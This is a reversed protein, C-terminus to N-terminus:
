RTAADILALAEPAAWDADGQLRAVENGEPDILVTVPLGLVAMERALAGKADVLSTLHQVGLGDLFPQVTEPRTHATAVLVVEFKDSGRAAQLADLDPMEKKCPACWNAWFNLLVWKGRWAALTTESGDPALVPRTGVPRKPDLIRLKTMDGARVMAWDPEAALAPHLAPTACLLAAAYLVSRFM